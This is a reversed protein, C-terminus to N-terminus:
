VAAVSSEIQTDQQRPSRSSPSANDTAFDRGLVQVIKAWATGDGFPNGARAMRAYAAPDNTVRTVHAVIAARSSGIVLACGAEVAEPRETEDRLVVLPVGFTPAEEQLGGSDTLVLWADALAQQMQTYDLPARLTVNAVDGLIHNVPHQIVPNLHVPFLIRLDPQRRAIDAM